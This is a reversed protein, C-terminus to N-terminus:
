SRTGAWSATGWTQERTREYLARIRDCRGPDAEILRARRKLHEAAAHTAGAGAFPDLVCDGRRTEDRLVRAVAFASLGAASHSPLVWCVDVRGTRRKGGGKVAVAVLDHRRADDWVEDGYVAVAGGILRWQSGDLVNLYDLCETGSPHALYIAAGPALVRDAAILTVSLMGPIDQVAEGALEGESLTIVSRNRPDSILLSARNHELLREYSAPDRPDACLLRHERLVILDGFETRAEVEKEISSRESLESDDTQDDLLEDYSEQDWGTGSFDPLDYLIRSVELNDYGALDSTRNDALLIRTAEEDSVNVFFVEIFEWGLERAARLTHNGCLVEMTAQNAIVPRYQGNALLSDKIGPVDGIRPNRPHLKLDHVSVRTTGSGLIRAIESGNTAVATEDPALPLTGDHDDPEWFTSVRPTHRLM